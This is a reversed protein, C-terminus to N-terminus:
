KNIVKSLLSRLQDREEMNLNTLMEEETELHSVVIHDIVEFGSKTLAIKQGRRDSPDTLREIFGRKELRDLRNTMASTSLMMEKALESPSLTKGGEQRRLTMLVDFQPFDLKYEAINDLVGKKLVDGAHWVDGCVAMPSPDLDPRVARWQAVIRDTPCDISMGETPCSM